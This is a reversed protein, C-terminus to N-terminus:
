AANDGRASKRTTFESIRDLLAQDSLIASHGVDEVVVISTGPRRAALEASRAFPADADEPDHLILIEAGPLQEPWSRSLQPWLQPDWAELRARLGRRAWPLLRLRDGFVDLADHIDLAPAVLVVRPPAKDPFVLRMVMSAFSHAVIVEPRGVDDIVSRLAAASKKIDTSAGGAHGPLRPVIVRNGEAALRLAIEGMQATRGGWGHLAIALPGEGVEFGGVEGSRFPTLRAISKNDRQAIRSSLPPPTLWARFTLAPIVRVPLPIKM